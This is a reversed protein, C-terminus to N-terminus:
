QIKFKMLDLFFPSTPLYEHKTNVVYQEWFRKINYAVAM